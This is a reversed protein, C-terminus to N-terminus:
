DAARERVHCRKGSQVVPAHEAAAAAARKHKAAEQQAALKAAAAKEALAQKARQNARRNTQRAQNLNKLEQDVVSAIACPKQDADRAHAAKYKLFEMISEVPQVKELRM